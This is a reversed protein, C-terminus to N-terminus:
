ATPLHDLYESGQYPLLLDPPPLHRSSNICSSPFSSLFPKTPFLFFRIFSHHHSSHLSRSLPPFILSSVKNSFYQSVSSASYFLHFPHISSRTSLHISPFPSVPGCFYIFPNVFISQSISSYTTSLNFFIYPISLRALPCISHFFIIFYIYFSSWFFSGIFINHISYQFLQLISRFTAQNDFLQISLRIQLLASLFLYTLM